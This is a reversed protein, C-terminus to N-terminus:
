LWWCLLCRSIHCRFNGKADRAPEKWLLTQPLGFTVRLTYIMCSLSEHETAEGSRITSRILSRWYSFNVHLLAIILWRIKSLQHHVAFKVCEFHGVLSIAPNIYMMEKRILFDNWNQMTQKIASNQTGSTHLVGGAIFHRYRFQSVSLGAVTCKIIM